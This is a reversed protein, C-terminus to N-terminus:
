EEAATDPERTGAPETIVPADTAPQEATPAETVPPAATPPAATPPVTVVPATPTFAPVSTPPVTVAPATTTTLDLPGWLQVVVTDGATVTTGVAPVAEAVTDPAHTGDNYKTQKEAVLHKSVLTALAQEYTMGTIDPVQLTEAGTSVYLVLVSGRDVTVGIDLSQRMIQGAPIEASHEEVRELHFFTSYFPDNEIKVYQEGILSPMMYTQVETTTEQEAPKNKGGLALALGVIMLVVLGALVGILIRRKKSRAAEQELLEEATPGLFEQPDRRRSQRAPPEAPADDEYSDILAPDAQAAPRGEGTPPICRTAGGRDTEAPYVPPAAPAPAERRANYAPNPAHAAPEEPYVPASAGVARPSASLNSRLQEANRTRDRPMIQMANIIANIVYPPLKEAFKAPIMMQDNEARIPAGIPTAGILARYLVATFAYIDTWPGIEATETYVELPAYGESIAPKLGGYQTRVAAISFDSLKMHGDPMMLFASPDIGRHIVGSAHLTGLTSIVPMFLIRAEEWPIYGGNQQLLYDRLTHTEPEAYVAYATGDFRFVDYVTILATLGRLGRLTQWLKEFAAFQAEFAAENGVAAHVTLRDADRVALPDPFFERVSCRRDEQMDYAIYTVGEGNRRKQEGIYYRDAIMSGLPLFPPEQLLSRGGGCHPCVDSEGKHEMCHFCLKSLDEM